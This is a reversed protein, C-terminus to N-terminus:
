QEWDTWTVLDGLSPRGDHRWSLGPQQMRGIPCVRTAGWAALHRVLEREEHDAAAIGVTSVQGHVPDAGALAESLDRAAKVYIFRNLCSMQFRPDQEYIVTWATSDPSCWLATQEPLHLCRVEYFSRRNAIAASYETSLTGRPDHVERNALENAVAAAFQNALGTGNDEVYFVHPSLCGLQNWAVVDDVARTVIKKFRHSQLIERTIYGFSVRHGYGLFRTRRPIRSQIAALTEDSGTAVVCASEAFLAAELRETGGPWEAIEICAALKPDTERLSHAFLRPLFSTGRACKVFQASRLLLGHIMGLLVPNPIVGGTIHVLLEPGSAMAARRSHMEGQTMSPADLRQLHGLEQVLLSEINEATLEKFFADLGTRLTTESFGTQRPGETLAYKRFPYEEDLWDEAARCITGILSSTTRGALYQTRNRKLTQCAESIMAPQLEAEPPLDALYYNPLNM